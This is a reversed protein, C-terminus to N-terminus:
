PVKNKAIDDEIEMHCNACCLECKDLELQIREWSWTLSSCIEFEKKTSDTHHFSLARSNKNYGCRNCKGGKYDIAKQKRKQRLKKTTCSNCVKRRHGSSRTYKFERNCESCTSM